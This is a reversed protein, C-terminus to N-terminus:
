RDDRYSENEGGLSSPEGRLYRSADYILFAVLLVGMAGLWRVPESEWFCAIV